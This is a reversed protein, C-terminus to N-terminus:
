KPRSPHMRDPCSQMDRNKSACTNAEADAPTRAPMRPRSASAIARAAQEATEVTLADVLARHRAVMTSIVEARAVTESESAGRAKLEVVGAAHNRASVTLRLKAAAAKLSGEQAVLQFARLKSFDLDELRM